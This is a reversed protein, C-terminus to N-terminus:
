GSRGDPPAPADGLVEYFDYLIRATVGWIRRGEWLYEHMSYSRGLYTVEGAARHLRALADLEALFVDAVEDPSPTLTLPGRLVAVVPTIVFGTPTPQDDLFGLVEAAQPPIGLEEEAERLASGAAHSDSAECQGGPFAIQGSHHRLGDPRVTFILRAPEGPARVIPVLVAAEHFGQLGLRTQAAEDIVLRERAALRTRLEAIRQDLLSM